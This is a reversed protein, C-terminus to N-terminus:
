VTTKTTLRRRVRRGEGVGNGGSGSSASPRKRLRASVASGLGLWPGAPIARFHVLKVDLAEAAHSELAKELADAIWQEDNGFCGGGLATLYVTVRARRARALAAAAALTAEYAADLVACAFPAWHASPVSKVYALPLASCFIQCVRHQCGKVQTSRHIGVRLSRKVNSTLAPDGTLRKGLEAMGWTTMPLCYGNTMEWYKHKRNGLALAVDSLTNLQNRGAQGKGNVFYNRFVTAAPCSLACAPGQTRDKEYITVGNEPRVEPGMMELCNFQSAVQFVAGANRCDQHLERVDGVMNAFTLGGDGDEPGSAALRSQLEELTPSEFLGIEFRAGNARSTLVADDTGADEQTFGRRTQAFSGEEFGFLDAFWTM